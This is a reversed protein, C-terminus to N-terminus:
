IHILSLEVLIQRHRGQEPLYQGPEIRTGKTAHSHCWSTLPSYRVLNTEVFAHCFRASQQNFDMSLFGIKKSETQVNGCRYAAIFVRAAFADEDESSTQRLSELTEVAEQM